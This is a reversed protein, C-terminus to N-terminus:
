RGFRVGVAMYTRKADAPVAFRNYTTVDGGSVQGIEGVVRMIYLNISLDAFM